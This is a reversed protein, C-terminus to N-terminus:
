RVMAVDSDNFTVVKPALVDLKSEGGIDVEQFGGYCIEEVNVVM